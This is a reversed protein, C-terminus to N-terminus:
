KSLKYKKGVIIAVIAASGLIPLAIDTIAAATDSLSVALTLLNNLAHIVICPIISGCRQATIALCFGLAFTYPLQALSMHYAAFLAASILAASYGEFSRRLRALAAGRFAIEEALPSLIVTYLAYLALDAGKPMISITQQAGILRTLYGALCSLFVAAFLWASLEWPAFGKSKEPLKGRGCIIVFAAVNAGLVCVANLLINYWYADFLGRLLHILVIGILQAASFAALVKFLDHIKSTHSM